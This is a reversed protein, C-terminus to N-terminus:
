FPVVKIEDKVTIADGEDNYVKYAILYLTGIILGCLERKKVKSHIIIM